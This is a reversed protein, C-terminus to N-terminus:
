RGRYANQRLKDELNHRLAIVTQKQSLGPGRTITGAPTMMKVLMFSVHEPLACCRLNYDDLKLVVAELRFGLPQVQMVLRLKM